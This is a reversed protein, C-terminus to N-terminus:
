DESSSKQLRKFLLYAVLGVGGVLLTNRLTTSEEGIDSFTKNLNQKDTLISVNDNLDNLTIPQGITDSADQVVKRLLTYESEKTHGIIYSILSEPFTVAANYLMFGDLTIMIKPVFSFMGFVKEAIFGAVQRYWPETTMESFQDKTHEEVLDLVFDNVFSQISDSDRAAEQGSVIIYLPVGALAEAVASHVKINKLVKPTVWYLLTKIRNNLRTKYSQIKSASNDFLILLVAQSYPGVNPNLITTSPDTNSSLRKKLEKPSLFQGNQDLELVCKALGSLNGSDDFFLFPMSNKFTRSLQLLTHIIETTAVIFRGMDLYALALTDHELIMEELSSNVGGEDSRRSAIESEMTLIVRELIYITRYCRITQDIIDQSSWFSQVLRNIASLELQQQKTTFEKENIKSKLDDVTKKVTFLTLNRQTPDSLIADQERRLSEHAAKEYESVISAIKQRTPKLKSLENAIIQQEDQYTVLNLAKVINDNTITLEILPMVSSFTIYIGLDLGVTNFTKNLLFSPNYNADTIGFPKLAKLGGARADRTVSAAEKPDLPVLYQQENDFSLERVGLGILINPLNEIIGCFVDVQPNRRYPILRFIISERLDFYEIPRITHATM